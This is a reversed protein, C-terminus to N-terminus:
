WLSTRTLLRRTLYQKTFELCWSSSDLVGVNKIYGECVGNFDVLFYSKDCSTDPYEDWSIDQRLPYM